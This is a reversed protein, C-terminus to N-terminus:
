TVPLGSVQLARAAAGPVIPGRSNVILHVGTIVAVWAAVAGLVIGVRRSRSSVSTSDM